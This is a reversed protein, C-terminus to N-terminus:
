MFIHKLIVHLEFYWKGSCHTYDVLNCPAVSRCGMINIAFPSVIIEFSNVKLKPRYLFNLESQM